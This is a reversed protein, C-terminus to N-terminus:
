PRVLSGLGYKTRDPSSPVSLLTPISPSCLSVSNAISWKKLVSIHFCSTAHRWLQDCAVRDLGAIAARLDPRPNWYQRWELVMRPYKRADKTIREPKVNREVIAFLDPWIRRCDVEDHEGFDIVYRHHAHSPSTNVEQGGIYPFIVTGNLPSKDIMRHMESVPTAIGKRDSDDFTFGMGLIISGQFSKGSNGVLREPDDHGGNHFLFASIMDVERGDLRMASIPAGKIIHMVSVIVAAQGPWKIRRLTHYQSVGGNKCLRHLGTSRTDAQGITNTAILGLAGGERLLNFSRRFFHAVLDAGGSSAEHLAILWKAYVAGQTASVNRGGQFPPNGVIADFGPNERDFVETFEVEWHFPVLPPEMDRLSAPVGELRNSVGFGGFSLSPRRSSLPLPHTLSSCPLHGPTKPYIPPRRLTKLRRM